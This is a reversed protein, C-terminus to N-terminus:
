RERVEWANRDEEAILRESLASRLDDDSLEKLEEVTMKKYTDLKKMENRVSKIFGFLGMNQKRRTYLNNLFNNTNQNM